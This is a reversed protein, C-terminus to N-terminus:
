RFMSDFDIMLVPTQVYVLNGELRKCVEITKTSILDKDILDDEVCCPNGGHYVQLSQDFTQLKAILEAVTM